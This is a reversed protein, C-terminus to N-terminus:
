GDPAETGSRPAGRQSRVGNGTKSPIPRDGKPSLTLLERMAVTMKCLVGRAPRAGPTPIDTCSSGRTCSAMSVRWRSCPCAGVGCMSSVRRMTGKWQHNASPRSSPERSSPPLPAPLLRTARPVSSAAQKGVGLLNPYLLVVSRRATWHVRTSRPPMANRRARRAGGHQATSRRSSRGLCLSHTAPLQAWPSVVQASRANHLSRTRLRSFRTRVRRAFSSSADLWCSCSCVDKGPTLAVNSSAPSEISGRGVPVFREGESDSSCHAFRTIVSCCCFSSSRWIISVCRFASDRPPGSCDGPRELASSSLSRRQRSACFRM